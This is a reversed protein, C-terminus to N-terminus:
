EHAPATFWRRVAEPSAVFHDGAFRIAAALRDREGNSSDVRSQAAPLAEAAAEIAAQVDANSVAASPMFRGGYQMLFGRAWMQQFFAQGLEADAFVVDFMTPWAFSWAAVQRSAFVANLGKILQEGVERMRALATGDRLADLTSLAAAFPTVERQYTNGMYTKEGSSLVDARGAVASLAMGNALGKSLTILDPTLGVAMHYGGFAYRFGTMVEDVILLAGHRHVQRQLEKHYEPPFFNVEPTIIVAAVREVSALEDLLDLDYRFDVSDRDRNPLGMDPRDQLQWDHWGHYGSTLVRNVGTFARALRVAASTACSGTRFFVAREAIPFIEALREALEIRHVSLPGPLIGGTRRMEAAAHAVVPEYGAGLPAAGSCSTFDVYQKENIDWAHAGSARAMVVPFRRNLDWRESATVRLARRLASKPGDTAAVTRSPINTSM